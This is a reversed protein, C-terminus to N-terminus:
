YQEQSKGLQYATLGILVPFVIINLVGMANVYGSQLSSTDAMALIANMIVMILITITLVIAIWHDQVFQIPDM